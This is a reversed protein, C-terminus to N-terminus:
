VEIEMGGADIGQQMRRIWRANALRLSSAEDSGALLAVLQSNSAAPSGSPLHLNNEFGVRVHGGLAIAAHLIEMDNPGFACCMWPSRSRNKEVFRHLTAVDDTGERGLVFLLFAQDGPIVGLDQLHHFREVDQPSYLIHQLMTGRSKMEDYFAAADDFCSEDPVLERLAVSVSEAPLDRMAAMQEHRNYVGAAESSVQILMKDGVTDVIREIAPGYHRALISHAGTENRVHLHIMAAGAELSQLAERALEDPEIPLGPVEQKTRRAGNPAVAILLPRVDLM